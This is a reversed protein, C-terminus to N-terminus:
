GTCRGVHSQKTMVRCGKIQKFEPGWRVGQARWASVSERGGERPGERAECRSGDRMGCTDCTVHTGGCCSLSIVQTHCEYGFGLRSSNRYSSVYHHHTETILMQVNTQQIIILMPSEDPDIKRVHPGACLISLRTIVKYV